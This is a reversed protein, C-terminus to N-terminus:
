FPRLRPWFVFFVALCYPLDIKNTSFGNVNWVLRQLYGNTVCCLALECAPTVDANRYHAQAAQTQLHNVKTLLSPTATHTEVAHGVKQLVVRLLLFLM